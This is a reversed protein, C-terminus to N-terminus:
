EVNLFRAKYVQERHNPTLIPNLIPAVRHIRQQFRFRDRAMVQWESKRAARYAFDWALMVHVEPKLNFRVKKNTTSSDNSCECVESKEFDEDDDEDSCATPQISSEDDDEFCIDFSNDSCESISRQRQMSKKAPSDATDDANNNKDNSVHSSSNGFEEQSDMFRPTTNRLDIFFYCSSSPVCPHFADLGPMTAIPDAKSTVRKKLATQMQNVVNIAMLQLSNLMNALPEPELSDLLLNETGTRQELSPAPESEQMSDAKWLSGPQHQRSPAACRYHEYIPSSMTGIMRLVFLLFYDLLTGMLTHFKSM